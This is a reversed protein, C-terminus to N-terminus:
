RSMQRHHTCLQIQRGSRSHWFLYTQLKFDKFDNLNVQAYMQQTQSSAAADSSGSADGNVQFSAASDLVAVNCTKGLTSINEAIVLDKRDVKIEIGYLTNKANSVDFM